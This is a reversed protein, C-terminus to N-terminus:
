EKYGKKVLSRKHMTANLLGGFILIMGTFYLWLMLIIVGAISGYTSAYNGFNNVYYSFGYILTVWAISSFLAGPLVSIIRLRPDTNPIIWYILNLVLFILVPPIIWRVLQWFDKFTEEVGLYNFLSYAFHEGLIPIVLAIIIIVVLAITFVLSLSRNILGSKPETEYAGNLTKILANVGRSASWITGLVGVSLLGGGSHTTLIETLTGQTLLFVESPVVTQLFDFVYDVDLDLYPLLTVIFILLPFFSLLFFYALQAGMGSIDVDRMRVFLDQIFGKGTTIDIKSEDPDFFSKVSAVVGNNQKKKEEKM